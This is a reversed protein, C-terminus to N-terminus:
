SVDIKLYDFAKKLMAIDDKFKLKILVEQPSFWQADKIESEQYAMTEYPSTMLYFYVYKHILLTEEKFWYDIKGLMKTISLKKLGTEETVERIAALQPKEKEEIHGKPFTWVDNSSLILVFKFSYGVKHYVIGGASFELKM